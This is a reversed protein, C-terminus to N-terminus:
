NDKQQCAACRGYLRVEHSDLEIGAASAAAQLAENTLTVEVPIDLLAGCSTCIAHDHREIHADYRSETEGIARIMGQQTLQHLIRYITALGIRPREHRVKEYIELATPHQKTARVVDLVAQVNANLTKEKMVMCLVFIIIM